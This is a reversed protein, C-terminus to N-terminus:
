EPLLRKRSVVGHIASRHLVTVSHRCPAREVSQVRLSRQLCPGADRCIRVAYHSRGTVPEPILPPSEESPSGEVYRLAVSRLAHFATSARRPCTTSQPYGHQQDFVQLTGSGPRLDLGDTESRAMCGLHRKGELAHTSAQVSSRCSPSSTLPGSRRRHLDKAQVRAVSHPSQESLHEPNEDWHQSNQSPQRERWAQKM